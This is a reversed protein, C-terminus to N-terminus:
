TDLTARVAALQRDLDAIQEAQVETPVKIFPGWNGDDNAGAYLGREKIDAFFAEFRYFDRASFPDFKHDHCEACGLTIGLWTGSANRVREAIYKALYEKDQVGGEASMMGLRNYGSAILQERTPNPLLDGAIQEVTFQNFPKNGNFSAIVYDRFPSVSMLQDGHYGVTDAYRVLDLWWIALREGFHPSTLLQDVLREYAEPSNDSLFAEAEAPSPPLGLLDFYLRRLLTVRDASASGPLKQRQLEEKVFRDIVQSTTESPEAATPKIPTFAWHGEYPAGQRVWNELLEVQAPTLAKHSDPPPMIEDEDSSRIRRILESEEPKGPVITGSQDASGFLGERTDLRLDAQRKNKDPGHCFFCNDSLLPRIDRNFAVPSSPTQATAPSTLLLTLLCVIPGSLRVITSQALMM